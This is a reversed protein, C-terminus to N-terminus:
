VNGIEEKFRNTIPMRRDRGFARPTIKVGPPSQRRKYESTDVMRVTKLVDEQKFSKKIIESVALDDEIYYKLIPDLTEYVPLSDSDKQNERLEATPAKELVRQPIIEKNERQNYFGSLKYVLTKPVDKIVAFGGAMDGYLTAYGVGMESKNGTTLVLWGFKNSLAMLINGRIRAQLNEEATNWPQGSFHPNLIDLYKEFIEQIPITSHKLGLNNALSIADDSSDPSNFRSPLIAGIVNDRGLAEAAIVAVLSSDVGGSLGLVVKSFGNKQCYDRTGLVLASFVEETTELKQIRAPPILQLINKQEPLHITIVKTKKSKPKQPLKELDLDVALLDEKFAAALSLIKGKDSILMSQGDFVLEDQGGVLNIYAIFVKNKRAQNKLMKQRLNIKGTHYPSANITLILSAGAQAQSNIVGDEIWIDECINVGLRLGNLEYLNFKSGSSFYRKEDFVGYNPLHIKHYIDITKKNALVAASNFLAGKEKSISGVIAIIGSTKEKIQNLRRINEQIFSNKFLLDEPPYGCVALEPFCVIHSGQAKAQEIANIIKHANGAFDGVCTNIQAMALRLINNKKM